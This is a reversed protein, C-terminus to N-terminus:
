VNTLFKRLFYKDTSSGTPAGELFVDYMFDDDMCSPDYLVLESGSSFVASSSYGNKAAAIKVSADVSTGFGVTMLIDNNSGSDMYVLSIGEVYDGNPLPSYPLPTASGATSVDFNTSCSAESIQALRTYSLTYIKSGDRNFCYGENLLSDSPFGDYEDYTIGVTTIDWATSLTYQRLTERDVVVYIKTGTTNLTLTNIIRSNGGPIEFDHEGQLTLTSNINNASSLSFQAIKSGSPQAIYLRTGGADVHCIPAEKIFVSSSLFSSIDRTADESILPVTWPGTPSCTARNSVVGFTSVQCTTGSTLITYFNGGGNFINAVGLAPDTYITDGNKPGLALGDHYRITDASDGCALVATSKGTNSMLFEGTSKYNRFNYLEDKSGSYNNDFYADNAEAFCTVLSSTSALNIELRVDEQSFRNSDPVGM